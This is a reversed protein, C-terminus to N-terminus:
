ATCPIRLMANQVANEVLPDGTVQASNLKSLIKETLRQNDSVPIDLRCKNIIFTFM